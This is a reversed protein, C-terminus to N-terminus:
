MGDTTLAHPNTMYAAAVERKLLGKQYLSRLSADMTQMGFKAHTEVIAAIHSTKGERILNAVAPVNRVVEAAAIRGKGQARPLLRQAVVAILCFSLQARVQNQQHPPFMDIIRDMAQIGSNTHLTALVLHGTEAATLATATTELDRMEGILIVDPDQRLVHRLAVAFTLTDQGIERQDIVCNKSTYLFEIPDEITIIHKRRKKNVIDILSAQTTSKGHGTPGTFLLMGQPQLVLDALIAPLGLSELSPITSPILRFSGAVAGKQYYANGRFRTKDQFQISFDLEREAEFRAIQDQTLVSYVLELSKDHTLPPLDFPCLDGNLRLCPPVGATLLLDSAGRRIAAELFRGIDYEKGADTM